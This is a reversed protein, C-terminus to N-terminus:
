ELKAKRNEGWLAKIILPGFALALPVLFILFWCFRNAWKKASQAEPRVILYPIPDTEMKISSIDLGTITHLQEKTRPYHVQHSEKNIAFWGEETRGIIWIDRLAFELIPGPHIIKQWLSDYRETKPWYTIILKPGRMEYGSGLDFSPDQGQAVVFVFNTIPIWILLVIILGITFRLILMLRKQTEM